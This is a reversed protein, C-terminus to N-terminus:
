NLINGIKKTICNYLINKLILIDSKKKISEKIKHLKKNKLIM